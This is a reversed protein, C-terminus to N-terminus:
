SIKPVNGKHWLYVIPSAVFISSYTGFLVGITVAIAFDRIVIGGFIALAVSTILTTSSALITRALMENISKNIIDPFSLRNGDKRIVERIRDFVVVTDTLSYGAITLLATVILLNMEFGLLYLIALIAIVDHFTAIAAAAGFSINFRFALYCLIGLLSAFIAILAKNRLDKSVSSGIETKSEISFKNESVSKNLLDTLKEEFNGINEEDKKIKVILKNENTV